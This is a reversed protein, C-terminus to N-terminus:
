VWGARVRIKWCNFDYLTVPRAGAGEFSFRVSIATNNAFLGDLDFIMAATHVLGGFYYNGPAEINVESSAYPNSLSPPCINVFTARLFSPPSGYTHPITFFFSGGGYGVPYPTLLVWEKLTKDDTVEIYHKFGSVTQGDGGCLKGSDIAQQLSM